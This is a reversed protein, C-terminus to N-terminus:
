AFVEGCLVKYDMRLLTHEQSLLALKTVDEGNLKNFTVTQGWTSSYLSTGSQRTEKM